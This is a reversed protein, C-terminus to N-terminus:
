SYIGRMHFYTSIYKHVNEDSYSNKIFYMHITVSELNFFFITTVTYAM